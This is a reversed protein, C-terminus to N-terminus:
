PKKARGANLEAAFYLAAHEALEAPSVGQQAAENEFSRWVGEDVNLEVEVTGNGRERLFSPYSWGPRRSGKEDLYYSVALALQKSIRTAGDRIDGRLAVLAFESLGVTVSRMM